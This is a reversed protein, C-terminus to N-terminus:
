YKSIQLVIRDSRLSFLLFACIRLSTKIAACVGFLDLLGMQERRAFHVFVSIKPSRADNDNNKNTRSLKIEPPACFCWVGCMKYTHM